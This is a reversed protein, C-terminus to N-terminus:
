QWSDNPISLQPFDKGNSRNKSPLQTIQKSISGHEKRNAEYRSKKRIPKFEPENWVNLGLFHVIKHNYKLIFRVSM